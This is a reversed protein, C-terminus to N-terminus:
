GRNKVSVALGLLQSSITLGNEFAAREDIEFRVHNEKMVFNIVPAAGEGDALDTVTLVGAGRAAKLTQSVREVNSDGTYLIHCGSEPSFAKISRVAVARNGIPRATAKTLANGVPSDGIVCITIPSTDSTFAGDPWRIFGGFKSIYAAKVTFENVDPDAAEAVGYALAGCIFAPILAWIRAPSSTPLPRAQRLVRSDSRPKQQPAEVEEAGLIVKGRVHGVCM